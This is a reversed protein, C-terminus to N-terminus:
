RSLLLGHQRADFGIPWRTHADYRAGAMHAGELKAGTLDAGALDAGRLDAERLDAGRLDANRLNKKALSARRLRATRLQPGKDPSGPIVVSKFEPQVGQKKNAWYVRLQLAFLGCAVLMTTALVVGLWLSDRDRKREQM